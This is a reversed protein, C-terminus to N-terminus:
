DELVPMSRKNLKAKAPFLSNKDSTLEMEVEDGYFNGAASFRAPIRLRGTKDIMGWQKKETKMLALKNERFIYIAAYKMRTLAKGTGDILGENFFKSVVAVGNSFTQVGDVKLSKIEKGKKDLIVWEDNKKVWAFGDSFNGAYEYAIPTIENGKADIYGFKGNLVVRALGGYYDDAMDYRPQVIEECYMDVFGWKKNRSVGAYGNKFDVLFIMLMLIGQFVPKQCRHMPAFLVSLYFHYYFCSLLFFARNAVMM